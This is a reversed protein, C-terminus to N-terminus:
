NSLWVQEGRDVGAIRVRGRELATFDQDTLGRAADVRRLLAPGPHHESVSQRDADTIEDDVWSPIAM